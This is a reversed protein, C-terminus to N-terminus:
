WVYCISIHTCPFRLLCNPIGHETSRRKGWTGGGVAKSEKGAQFWLDEGGAASAAWEQNRWPQSLLLLLSPLHVPQPKLACAGPPIMQLTLAVLFLLESMTTPNENELCSDGPHCIATTVLFHSCGKTPWGLYSACNLRALLWDARWM